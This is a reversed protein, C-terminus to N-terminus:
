FMAEKKRRGGVWVSVKKFSVLYKDHVTTIVNYFSNLLSVLTGKMGEGCNELLKLRVMSKLEYPCLKRGENRPLM